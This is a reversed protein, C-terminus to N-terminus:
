NSAYMRVPEVLDSDNSLVVAAQYRELHGDHVMHTAINVDSGKEETKIVLVSTTGDPLPSVLRMKRHSTLFQGLIIEM